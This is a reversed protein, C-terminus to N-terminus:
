TAGGRRPAQDPLRKGCFICFDHEPDGCQDQVPDHGVIGCTVTAVVGKVKDFAEWVRDYRTAFVRDLGFRDCLRDPTFWFWQMTKLRLRQLM